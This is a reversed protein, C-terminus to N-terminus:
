AAASFEDDSYSSLKPSGSVPNGKKDVESLTEVEFAIDTGGGKKERIAMEGTIEVFKGVPPCAAFQDDDLSIKAAGGLHPILCSQYVTGDDAVFRNKKDVKGSCTFELTNM